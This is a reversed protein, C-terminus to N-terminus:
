KTRADIKHMRALVLKKLLAPDLALSFNYVIKM